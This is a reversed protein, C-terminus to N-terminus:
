APHYYRSSRGRVVPTGLRGVTYRHFGQRFMVRTHLGLVSDWRVHNLLHYYGKVAEGGIMAEMDGRYLKSGLM